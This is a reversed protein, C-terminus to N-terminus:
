ALAEDTVVEAVDYAATLKTKFNDVIDAAGFAVVVYEDTVTAMVLKEPFGCMWQNSQIAGKATDLFSQVTAADKLHYAIGTFTNANMAHLLSAAGDIMALADAPCVAMSLMTDADEINMAGPANDVPASFDGGTAFFREEEGFGNWVTTLIDAPANVGELKVAADNDNNDAADNKDNDAGCAAFCVLMSLSLIIALVKKM